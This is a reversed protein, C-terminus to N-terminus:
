FYIEIRLVTGQNPQLHSASLTIKRPFLERAALTVVMKMMMATKKALNPYLLSMKLKNRRTHLFSSKHELKLKHLVEKCRSSNNPLNRTSSTLITRLHTLKQRLVRFILTLQKM